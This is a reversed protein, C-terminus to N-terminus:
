DRRVLVVSVDRQRSDEKVIHLVHTRRHEGEIFIREAGEIETGVVEVKGDLVLYRLLGTRGDIEVEFTQQSRCPRHPVTHLVPVGFTGVERGGGSGGTSRDSKRAHDRSPSPSSVSSSAIRRATFAAPLRKSRSTSVR